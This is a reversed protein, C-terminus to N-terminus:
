TVDTQEARGELPYRPRWTARPGATGWRRLYSPKMLSSRWGDRRGGTERPGATGRDSAKKRERQPHVRGRLPGPENPEAPHVVGEKCPLHHARGPEQSVGKIAHGPSPVGAAGSARARVTMRTRGEALSVADAEAVVFRKRLQDRV